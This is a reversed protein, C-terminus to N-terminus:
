FSVLLHCVQETTKGNTDHEQMLNDIEENTPNFGALRYARALERKSIRGDGNEDIKSFSNLIVAVFFLFFIM